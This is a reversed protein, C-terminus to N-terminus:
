PLLTSPLSHGDAGLLESWWGLNEERVEYKTRLLPPLPKRMDNEMFLSAM